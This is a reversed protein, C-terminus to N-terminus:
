QNAFFRRSSRSIDRFYTTEVEHEALAKLIAGSRASSDFTLIYVGGNFQIQVLPLAGFVKQLEDRSASTELEYVAQPAPANPEASAANGGAKLQQYIPAGQKLFIIQDSVKEVEYIQQSSLLIAMPQTHSQALFRLDQLITQQSIIDLNSLPEDLLLVEPKRLLTRALEFRTRYGSSITNWSLAKYPRLGLRAIIMEVWLENARGHLGYFSATLHLNDTLTGWWRPIRQQVFALRTRLDYKTSTDNAFHYAVSGTDPQLEGAMVRLLTTKGNGNEGVLGAVEGARISLDVPSLKFHGSKYRKSVGKVEIITTDAMRREPIGARQIASIMTMADASPDAGPNKETRECFALVLEYIDPTQTELAADIMRRLGLHHDGSQYHGAVESLRTGIPDTM